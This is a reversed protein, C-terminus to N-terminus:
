GVPPLSESADSINFSIGHFPPINGILKGGLNCSFVRLRVYGQLNTEQDLPHMPTGCNTQEM